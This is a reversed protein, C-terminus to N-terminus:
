QVPISVCVMGQVTQGAKGRCLMMHEGGCSSSLFDFGGPFGGWTSGEKKRRNVCNVWNSLYV